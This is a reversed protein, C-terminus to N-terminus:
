TVPMSMFPVSSLRAVHVDQLVHVHAPGPTHMSIYERAWM